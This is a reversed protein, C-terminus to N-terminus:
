LKFMWFGRSCVYGSVINSQGMRIIIDVCLVSRLEEFVM